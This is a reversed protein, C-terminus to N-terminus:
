RRGEDGVPQAANDAPRRASPAQPAPSRRCRDRAPISARAPPPAAHRNGRLWEGRKGIPAERYPRGGLVDPDRRSSARSARMAKSPRPGAPPTAGAAAAKSSAQYPLRGTLTASQSMAACATRPRVAPQAGHHRCHLRCHRRGGSEAMSTSMAASANEGDDRDAGRDWGVILAVRTASPRCRQSGQREVRPERPEAEIDVADARGEVESPLSTTNRSRGSRRARRLHRRGADHAEESEPPSRTSTTM